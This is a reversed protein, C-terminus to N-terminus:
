FTQLDSRMEHVVYFPLFEFLRAFLNVLNSSSHNGDAHYAHAVHGHLLSDVELYAAGRPDVVPQAAVVFSAEFPM